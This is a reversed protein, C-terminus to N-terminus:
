WFGSTLTWSISGYVLVSEVTARFFNRKLQDPLNSKWINNMGNLATWAKGLRINVDQETSAIFSCHYNVYNELNITEANLSKIGSAANQNLCIFKTKAANVFLGIVKALNEVRHLTAEADKIYDTLLAIDDAYDADSIEKAPHRRSRRQILTFGLDVKEDIAKKSRLRLLNHLYITGIHWGQLVSATIDFSRHIETQRDVLSRRNKYLMM